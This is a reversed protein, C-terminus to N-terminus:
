PPLAKNPKPLSPGPKPEFKRKKDEMEGSVSEIHREIFGGDGCWPCVYWSRGDRETVGGRCGLKGCGCEVWRSTGCHPCKISSINKIKELDVDTSKSLSPAGPNSQVTTSPAIIRVVEFFSSGSDKTLLVAWDKKTRTCKFDLRLSSSASEKKLLEAEEDAVRLAWDFADERKRKADLDSM